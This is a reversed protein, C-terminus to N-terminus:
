TRDPQNEGNMEIDLNQLMCDKQIDDKRMTWTESEYLFVSWMLTKKIMWRKLNRNLKGRLLKIRKSLAEKRTSDKKWNEQPM